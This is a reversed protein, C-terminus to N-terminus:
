RSFIDAHSPTEGLIDYISPTEEVLPLGTEVPAKRASAYSEKRSSPLIGDCDSGADSCSAESGRQSAAEFEIQSALLAAQGHTPRARLHPTLPARAAPPLSRLPPCPATTVQLLNAEEQDGRRGALRELNGTSAIRRQTSPSSSLQDLEIMSSSTPLKKANTTM